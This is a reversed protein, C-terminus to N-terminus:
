VPARELLKGAERYNVLQISQDLLVRRVRPACLARLEAEREISYGSPYDPDVYGPHCSLETIGDEIEAALMRALNHESIQELHTEGNWRGYFKSFYRVPSHERLPLGHERALELFFPLARPDRHANHHADLHTPPRGMLEQFREFQACLAARLGSSAVPDRASLEKRVDAHLGVSLDPLIRSLEAAQGSWPTNVLLSTSTLIGFRHAELIGRNIGRSAGFDDGNVILYKM